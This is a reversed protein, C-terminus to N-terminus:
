TREPYLECFLVCSCMQLTVHCTTMPQEISYPRSFIELYYTRFM